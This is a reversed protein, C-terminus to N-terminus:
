LIMTWTRNSWRSPAADKISDVYARRIYACCRRAISTPRPLRHLMQFREDEFRASSSSSAILANPIDPVPTM